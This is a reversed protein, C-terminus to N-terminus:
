EYQYSLYLKLDLSTFLIVKSSDKSHLASKKWSLWKLILAVILVVGTLYLVVVIVFWGFYLLVIM